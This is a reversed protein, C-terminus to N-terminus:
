IEEFIYLGLEMQVFVACFGIYKLSLGDPIQGGTKFARFRRTENPLRTDVKAWLWFMGGQDQVRLIEAGKPLVMTFQELVPMQYKLIVNGTAESMRPGRLAADWTADLPNEKTPEPSSGVKVLFSSLYLGPCDKIQVKDEIVAVVKSSILGTGLFSKGDKHRVLDGVKIKPKKM